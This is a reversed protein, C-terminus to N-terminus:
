FYFVCMCAYVCIYKFAKNELWTQIGGTLSLGIYFIYNKKKILISVGLLKDVQNASKRDNAM